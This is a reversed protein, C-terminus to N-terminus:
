DVQKLWAEFSLSFDEGKYNQSVYVLNNKLIYIVKDGTLDYDTGADFYGKYKYLDPEGQVPEWMDDLLVTVTEEPFDDSKVVRIFLEYDVEADKLVLKVFPDKPIDYGPPIIEYVNQTVEVNKRGDNGDLLDYVRDNKEESVNEAKHEAVAFTKVGTGAVRASHKERDSVLYKAFLGCVMWTSLMALVLLIGVAWFLTDGATRKSGKARNMGKVNM